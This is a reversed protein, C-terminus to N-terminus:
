ILEKWRIKADSKGESRIKECKVYHRNDSQAEGLFRTNDLYKGLFTM